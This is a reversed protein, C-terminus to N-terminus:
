ASVEGFTGHEAINAAQTLMKALERMQAPTGRMHLDFGGGRATFIVQGPSVLIAVIARDIGMGDSVFTQRDSTPCFKIESM